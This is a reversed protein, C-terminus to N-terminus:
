SWLAALPTATAFVEQYHATAESTADFVPSLADLLASEENGVLSEDDGLTFPFANDRGFGIM